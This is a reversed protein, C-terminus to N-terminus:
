ATLAVEPIQKKFVEVELLRNAHVLAVMGINISANLQRDIKLGCKECVFISDNPTGIEGCRSCSKSTNKPNVYMLPTNNWMSKYSILFQSRRFNARNLRGLLSLPKTRMMQEKNNYKNLKLKRKNIGKKINKLDEMVIMLKEGEAFDAIQKSVNDLHWRIRNRYNKNHSLKKWLAFRKPYKKQLRRNHGFYYQNLDYIKSLDWRVPKIENNKFIMGDISKENIDLAIIGQYRYPLYDKKVALVVFNKGVNIQGLKL